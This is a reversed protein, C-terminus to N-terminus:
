VKCHNEEAGGPLHWSLVMIKAVIEEKWINELEDDMLWGIM